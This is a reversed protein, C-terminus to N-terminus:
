PYIFQSFEIQPGRDLAVRIPLRGYKDAEYHFTVAMKQQPESVNFAYVFDGSHAEVSAPEPDIHSIEIAEIFTRNIRILAKGGPSAQPLFELRLKTPSQHREFRNYVASLASGPHDVRVKSLPGPGLLGALAALLILAMIAWGVREIAWERRQHTMDQAIELDGVRKVM